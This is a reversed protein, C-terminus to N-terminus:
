KIIKYIVTVLVYLIGYGSKMLKCSNSQTIIIKARVKYAIYFNSKEILNNLQIVRATSM